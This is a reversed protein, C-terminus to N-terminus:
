ASTENATVAPPWSLTVTTTSGNAPIGDASGLEDSCGLEASWGSQRCGFFSGEHSLRGEGGLNILVLVEGGATLDDVGDDRDGRSPAPPPPEEVLAASTMMTSQEPDIDVGAVLIAAAFIAQATAISVSRSPTSNAMMEPVAVAWM